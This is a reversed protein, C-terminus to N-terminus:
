DVYKSSQYCFVSHSESQMAKAFGSNINSMMSVTLRAAYKVVFLMTSWVDNQCGNKHYLITSIMKRKSNQFIVFNTKM